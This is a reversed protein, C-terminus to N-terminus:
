LSWLTPQHPALPLETQGPIDTIPTFLPGSRPVRAATHSQSRRACVPGVGRARSAQDTLVRGCLGCRPGM